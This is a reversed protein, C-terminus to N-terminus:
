SCAIKVAQAFEAELREKLAPTPKAKTKAAKKKRAAPKRKKM